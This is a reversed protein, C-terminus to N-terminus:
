LLVDCLQKKYFAKNIENDSNYVDWVGSSVNDKKMLLM